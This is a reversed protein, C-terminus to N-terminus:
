SREGPSARPARGVAKEPGAEVVPNPLRIFRLVSDTVVGLESLSTDLAEPRSLAVVHTSGTPSPEVEVLWRDRSNSAVPRLIHLAQALAGLTVAGSCHYSEALLTSDDHQAEVAFRLDDCMLLELADIRGTSMDFLIGADSLHIALEPLAEGGESRRRCGYARITEMLWFRQRFDGAPLQFFTFLRGLAGSHIIRALRSSRRDPLPLRTRILGFEARPVTDLLSTISRSYQRLDPRGEERTVAFLFLPKDPVRVVKENPGFTMKRAREVCRMRKLVDESTTELTVQGAKDVSVGVALCERVAPLPLEGRVIHLDAAREEGNSRTPRGVAYSWMRVRAATNEVADHLEQLLQPLDGHDDYEYVFTNLRTRLFDPDTDDKLVLAYHPFPNAGFIELAEGFLNLLYQDSLSSGVFLLSRSRFVETFARRFQPETHTVRRYEEHGVVLQQELELRKGMKAALATATAKKMPNPQNAGGTLGAVLAANGGAGKSTAQAIQMSRIVQRLNGRGVPGVFGQLAWLIPPRSAHLSTLVQRCDAPSRGLVEMESGTGAHVDNWTKIFLGDYNSTLVLHWYLQALATTQAPVEEAGEINLAQSVARAFPPEGRLRLQRVAVNARRILSEADNPRPPADKEPECVQRELATVFGEWSPCTRVSMGAGLFPVLRGQRYAAALRAIMLERSASV